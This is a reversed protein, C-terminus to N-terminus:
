TGETKKISSETISPAALEMETLTAHIDTYLGGSELLEDHTGVEIIRGREMIVIQDAKRITSLRHTIIFTTRGEMLNELANQIRMETKADVSSTSDDLILIKPNALIARAIAVRQRQGGSLTVGREGIITDYKEDLTEIFDHINAAKAADEVEKLSADPRAFAINNRITDSFLFPDQHVMGINRRLEGICYQRIDIGDIQVLGPNVIEYENDEIEITKGKAQFETGNIKVCGKESVPYTRGKYTVNRRTDADYFRPVLNMLSTKGSGTGGLLAIVHGPEAILSIGRLIYNDDRYSFFVNEFEVKGKFETIEVPNEPDLLEDRHDLIYFTREAAASARQYMGTGWTIFRAPLLLNAVLAVFAVFEGYSLDGLIYSLGGLYILIGTAIGFIAGLLPRYLSVLRLAELRITTFKKNENEVRAMERDTKAFSKVVKMGVINEALVSSMVGYQKRAEFFMPRVHKSFRYMFLVSVPLTLLMYLTLQLNLSAMVIYTVILTAFGIFIIRYGWFLYERMTTVDTTVRALLQGTEEQVYFALDKEMLSDYLDTRLDYIVKQAVISAGYRGVVDFFMYIITLALFFLTYSIILDYQATPIIDDIIAALVLPTVSNFATGIGAATLYALLIKRHRFVYGNLRSMYGM